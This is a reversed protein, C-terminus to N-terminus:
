MQRSLRDGAEERWRSSEWFGDGPGRPWAQAQSNGLFCLTTPMPKQLLGELKDVFLVVHGHGQIRAQSHRAAAESPSGRGLQKAASSNQGFSTEGRM